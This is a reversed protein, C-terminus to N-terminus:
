LAEERGASPEEAHICSKNQHVFGMEGGRLLPNASEVGTDTFCPVNEMLLMVTWYYFYLCIQTLTTDCLSGPFKIM